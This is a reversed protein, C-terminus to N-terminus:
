RPPIKSSRPKGSDGWKTAPLQGQPPEEEQPSVTPQETAEAANKMDQYQAFSMRPLKLIFATIAWLEHEDHTVGFAPMGTMKIGNKTVWYLEAPSLEEASKSLDPPRPNLGASIESRPTGPAGHCVECMEDYHHFGLRVLAPDDLSPAVIDKARVRVSNDMTIGLLYRVMSSHKHMASVNYIGSHAFILVGLALVALTLIITVVATRMPSSKHTM